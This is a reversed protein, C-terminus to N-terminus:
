TMNYNKQPTVFNLLSSCITQSFGYVHCPGLNTMHKSLSEAKGLLIAVVHPLAQHNVVSLIPSKVLNSIMQLYNKVSSSSKKETCTKWQRCPSASSTLYPYRHSSTAPVRVTFSMRFCAVSSFFRCHTLFSNIFARLVDGHSCVTVFYGQWVVGSTSAGYRPLQVTSHEKIALYEIHVFFFFLIHKM